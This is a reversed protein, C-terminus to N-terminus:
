NSLVLFSLLASSLYSLTFKGKTPSHSPTPSETTSTTSPAITSSAAITPSAVITPSATPSSTPISGNITGCGVRNKNSDHVVITRDKVQFMTFGSMHIKGTASGSSDTKYLPSTLWPDSIMEPTQYHGGVLSANNCTKGIHIHWGGTVNSELGTFSYELQIGSGTQGVLVSGRVTSVTGPYSSINVSRPRPIRILGCGRRVEHSDHVVIARGKVQFMTFGAVDIEGKANGSSDSTYKTNKWPDSSMSSLQYHGGVSSADICTKGDHIHWGGEKNPELGTFYYALHIGSGTQSVDVFGRVSNTTGPYAFIEASRPQPLSITGCGIKTGSPAPDHIVIARDKVQFMTFGPMDLKGVANGSSDSTYETNKWPDSSMSSLQYHGGVLSANACTKGDHIHWGGKVNPKLGTFYYALHIGSGTQSVDVFGRVINTTGPYAFIEASRPQPLSITGCGVKTGSPAPDHIVIARDEVHQMTFGSMHIQSKAYGYSDSKYQPSTLWPDSTMEPTQYHAGVLTANACTKGDHIHFGGTVNPKLGTITYALDIGDGSESIRVVGRVISITGPYNFIRAIRPQPPRILGCGVKSGSSSHVVIPRNIVKGLKFVTGLYSGNNVTNMLEIEGWANGFMNSKYKLDANLWPDNIGNINEPNYYHGGVFNADICTVGSHIHWGGVVNPELGNFKYSLVLYGPKEYVRVLGRVIATSDGPYNYIRAYYSSRPSSILGCGIKTGDSSHVVIARGNVQGLSYNSMMITKDTRGGVQGLYDTSYTNNAWPDTTGNYYHPGPNSCNTGSHIHWEGIADPEIGSFEYRLKIDSKSQQSEELVVVGAANLLGNYNPFTSIEAVLSGEAVLLLVFFVICIDM